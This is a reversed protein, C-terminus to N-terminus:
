RERERQVGRCVIVCVSEYMCIHFIAYSIIYM